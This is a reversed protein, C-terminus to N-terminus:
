VKSHELFLYVLFENFVAGGFDSPWTQIGQRILAFNYLLGNQKKRKEKSIGQLRSSNSHSLLVRLGDTESTNESVCGTRCLRSICARSGLPQV